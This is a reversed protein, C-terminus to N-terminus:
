KCRFGDCVHFDFSLVAHGEDSEDRKLTRRGGYVQRQVRYPEPLALDDTMAEELKQVLALVPATSYPRTPAGICHVWVQYVDIFMTKTDGPESNVLQVSYFPSEKNDPSDYCRLGTKEEIFDILCGTFEAISLRKLM